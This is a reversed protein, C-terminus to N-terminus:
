RSVECNISLAGRSLPAVQYGAGQLVRIVSDCTMGGINSCDVVQLHSPNLEFQARLGIEEFPINVAGQLHGSMFAPRERPDVITVPLVGKIQNLEQSILEGMDKNLQEQDSVINLVQDQVTPAAYGAWLRKVVGASDVAILTPTGLVRIGLSRDERIEAGNLGSRRLFDKAKGRDPVVVYLAVGQRSCADALRRYFPESQLCFPCAPSAVLVLNLHRLGFNSPTLLVRTGVAVNPRRDIASRQQAAPPGIFAPTWVFKTLVISVLVSAGGM